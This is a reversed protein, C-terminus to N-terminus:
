THRRMPTAPKEAAEEVHESAGPSVNQSGENLMEGRETFYHRMGLIKDAVLISKFGPAAAVAGNDYARNSDEQVSLTNTHILHSACLVRPMLYLM